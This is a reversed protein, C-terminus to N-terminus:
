MNIDNDKFGPSIPNILIGAGTLVSLFMDVITDINDPVTFLDYTKTLLLIFSIVSTVFLKNRLREKIQM